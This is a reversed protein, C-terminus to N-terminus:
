NQLGFTPAEPFGPLPSELFGGSLSVARGAVQPLGQLVELRRFQLLNYVQM